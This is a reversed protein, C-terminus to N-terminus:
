RLLVCCIVSAIVAPVRARVLTSIIGLAGAALGIGGLVGLPSRYAANLMVAILCLSVGLHALRSRTLPAYVCFVAACVPAVLARISEFKLAQRTGLLWGMAIGLLVTSALLLCILRQRRSEIAASM